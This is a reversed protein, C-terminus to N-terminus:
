FEDGLAKQASQNGAAADAATDTYQGRQVIKKPGFTQGAAKIADRIAGGIGPSGPSSQGMPINPDPAAM